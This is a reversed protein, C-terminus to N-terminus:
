PLRPFICVVRTYGCSSMKSGRVLLKREFCLHSLGYKHCHAHIDYKHLRFFFRLIKFSSRIQGEKM